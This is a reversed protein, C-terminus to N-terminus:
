MRLDDHIDDLPAHLCMIGSTHKMVEEASLTEKAMLAEALRHLYFEQDKMLTRARDYLDDVIWKMERYVARSDKSEGLYMAGLGENFGFQTVMQMALKYVEVLDGSAGTTIKKDGFVIEEAIRGGLAVMIKNELYERTMLALDINQESPEFYTAGGTRGRPVISVKRVNDYNNVLLAMLAHGSEHVALVYKKQETLVLTRKEEGLVMKELAKEFHHNNIESMNDRAAYIAAENTLNALEAGSFGVTVKAWSTFHVDEAIPKGQTHVKLIAIRGNVDPLEVAVRRDFRGPRLLAEDLIDLRNTAAMVIVGANDEFGDMMTLLQNITQDREDNGPSGGAGRAKGIADIEDIFVICPAKQRAKGFLDRLRSAGVGVFMEIFESGSCSIFPVGAEGAVAKALLTKGTGPPGYLLVGKPVKAGVTTYKEPTKLFDVVEMLDTKANEVGAVDAFTINTVPEDQVNSKSQLFGRMGGNGGGSLSTAYKYIVYFVLIQFIIPAWSFMEETKPPSLVDVPIDKELLTEVIDFGRPLTVTETIDDTTRAKLNKLDQSIHVYMIRQNDVDKMFDSFATEVAPASPLSKTDRWYFQAHETQPFFPLTFEPPFVHTRVCTRPQLLNRRLM